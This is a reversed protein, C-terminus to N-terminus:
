FTLDQAFGFDAMLNMHRQALQTEWSCFDPFLTSGLNRGARLEIPIWSNLVIVQARGPYSLADGHYVSTTPKFGPQSVYLLWICFYTSCISTEGM